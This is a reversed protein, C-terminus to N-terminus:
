GVVKKFFDLYQQVVAGETFNEAYSDYGAQAIRGALDHNVVLKEITKALAEHADIPTLLGNQGDEILSKPGQAACAVVPVKQAWAEIVVNGLPEHRSPCVFIDVTKLLDAVDKRWGLFRVRDAVGLNQALHKLTTEEPGDGALLLYVEPLNALSMILTDFAKNEHLRGLGLLLPKDEPVEFVKRDLSRGAHADVFNPLYDARNKPWNNQILYDVIDQTNGILHDCKRYYKLDYYGGLRAVHIFRGNSRPCAQSARNMWTLVIDPQFHKIEEEIARKTAYDFYRGVGGKMAVERVKLGQARLVEARQADSRIILSQTLGARSLAPALRMFFGEAGGVAAGAMMQLLKVM